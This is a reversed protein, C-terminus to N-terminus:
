TRGGYKYYDTQLILNNNQVFQEVKAHIESLYAEDLEPLEGELAFYEGTASDFGVNGAIWSGDSFPVFGEYSRDFADRGLYQYPSDIGMLNLVTPLLDATNLTKDVEMPEMNKSWIFCPTRELLLEQSVGSLALLAEVDTTTGDDQRYGYTYHDTVGIIVTNELQGQQELEQLLRAFLDDVLRAKLYACNTEERDDLFRYQPYKQLGWWSLMENYKYSLHASRTIIFNFTPAGERFFEACLDENDFLLCDDYQATEWAEEEVYDQYCVYEEYGMATSFVGRSYFAPDNYHFTKASYGIQRLQNAMSQQYHNTVYDFAYGGASSLYSGTNVCFETNFTRISGYGPTYFQTFNIGERMLRSITPTHEGIMWDDMSEMLVLIVNKGAFLGTMENDIREGQADFYDGLVAAAEKQAKAYGPTLPYIEHTYVDKCLMQSLGCVRYLRHANFMNKYAAEASQMRGYDGGALRDAESGDQLAQYDFYFVTMPLLLAATISAVVLLGAAKFGMSKREWRPFKWLLLVGLTVMALLGLWWGFPYSLLVDIYDAGESAYRFDSLWMMEGFLIYYGTQFGAYVVLLFYVVGYCIRAIKRPLMWLFTGLLIAWLAGFALPWLQAAEFAGPEYSLFFFGFLDPLFLSLPLLLFFFPQWRKWNQFRSKFFAKLVFESRQLVALM